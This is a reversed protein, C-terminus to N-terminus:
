LEILLYQVKSIEKLSISLYCFITGEKIKRIPCILTGQMDMNFYGSVLVEGNLDYYISLFKPHKASFWFFPKRENVDM